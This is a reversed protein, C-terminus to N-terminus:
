ESGAIRELRTKIRDLHIDANMDGLSSMALRMSDFDMGGTQMRVEEIHRGLRDIADYVDAVAKLGSTASTQPDVLNEALLSAKEEKIIRRLQRKTIKM